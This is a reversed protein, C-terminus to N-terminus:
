GAQNILNNVQMEIESPHTKNKEFVLRISPPGMRMIPMSGYVRRLQKIEAFGLRTFLRCLDSVSRYTFPQPMWDRGMTLNHGFFDELAHVKLQQDASLEKFDHTLKLNADYFSGKPWTEINQREEEFDGWINEEDTTAGLSDFIVIRGGQKLVHNISRLFMIQDAYSMHHLVWKAFIVDLSNAPLPFRTGHEQKLFALRPDPDGAKNVWENIDTGIIHKVNLGTQDSYELIQRGLKNKGAGIDAIVSNPPITDKLVKLDFEEIKIKMYEDFIADLELPRAMNPFEKRFMRAVSHPDQNKHLLLFQIIKDAYGAVTFQEGKYTLYPPVKGLGYIESLVRVDYRREIIQRFVNLVKSDALALLPNFGIEGLKEEQKALTAEQSDDLKFSKPRLNTYAYAPNTTLFSIVLLVSLFNFSVQKHM